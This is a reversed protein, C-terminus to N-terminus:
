AQLAPAGPWEVPRARVEAVQASLRENAQWLWGAAAGAGLALLLALWAPGGGKRPVAAPAPRPAPIDPARPAPQDTM